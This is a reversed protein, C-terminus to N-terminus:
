IGSEQAGDGTQLAHERSWHLRKTRRGRDTQLCFELVNEPAAHCAAVSRTTADIDAHVGHVRRVRLIQNRKEETCLDLLKVALRAHSLQGLEVDMQWDLKRVIVRLDGAGNSQVLNRLM